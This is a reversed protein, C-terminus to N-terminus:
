YWIPVKNSNNSSSQFILDTDPNFYQNFDLILTFLMERLNTRLEKTRCWLCSDPPVTFKLHDKKVKVWGNRAIGVCLHCWGSLPKGLHHMILLEHEIQFWTSFFVQPMFLRNEPRHVKQQHFSSRSRASELFSIAAILLLWNHSLKM